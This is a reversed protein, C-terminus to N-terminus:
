FPECAIDTKQSFERHPLLCFHIAPQSLLVRLFLCVQAIGSSGFFPGEFIFLIPLADSELKTDFRNRPLANEPLWLINSRISDSFHVGWTQGPCQTSLM